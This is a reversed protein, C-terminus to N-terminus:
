AKFLDWLKFLKPDRVAYQGNLQSCAVQSDNCIETVTGAPLSEVASLIGKYEAQNNTLGDERIVQKEPTSECPIRLWLRKRRPTSRERGHFDPDTTTEVQFLEQQEDKM